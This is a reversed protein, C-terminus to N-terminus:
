HMVLKSGVDQLNALGRSMECRLLAVPHSTLSQRHTTITMTDRFATHLGVTIELCVTSYYCCHGGPKYMMPQELHGPHKSLGSVALQPPALCLSPQLVLIIDRNSFVVMNNPPNMGIVNPCSCPICFNHLTIHRIGEHDTCFPIYTRMPAPILGTEGVGSQRSHNPERCERLTKLVMALYAHFSTHHLLNTSHVKSHAGAAKLKKAFAVM